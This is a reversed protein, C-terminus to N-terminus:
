KSASLSGRMKGVGQCCCEEAVPGLLEDCITARMALVDHQGAGPRLDGAPTAIGLVMEGVAGRRPTRWYTIRPIAAIRQARDPQRNEHSGADAPAVV